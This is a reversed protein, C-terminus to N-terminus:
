RNFLALLKKPKYVLSLALEYSGVFLGTFFLDGLVTNRFFPIALIYCESLGVANKPYIGGALWVGFNTILFFLVSSLLTGMLINKLDKHNKLWLGILGTLLFSGYVFPMMNYFGLFLDSIFLAILPIVLAYKKSYYIGGFLAMGAIPAFNPPHPVLRLIVAFAIILVPNILKKM